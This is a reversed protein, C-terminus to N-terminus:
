PVLKHDEALKDLKGAGDESDAMDALDPEDIDGPHDHHRYNTYRAIKKVAKEAEPALLAMMDDQESMRAFESVCEKVKPLVKALDHGSFRIDILFASYYGMRYFFSGVPVDKTAYATLGGVVKNGLSPLESKLKQEEAETSGAPRQSLRSSLATSFTNFDSLIDSPVDLKKMVTETEKVFDQLQQLSAPSNAVPNPDLDSLEAAIKGLKFFDYLNHTQQAPATIPMALACIISYLFCDTTKM